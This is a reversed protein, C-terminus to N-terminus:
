INYGTATTIKKKVRRLADVEEIDTSEKAAFDQRKRIV